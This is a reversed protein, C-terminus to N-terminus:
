FTWGLGVTYQVDLGDYSDIQDSEFEQDQYWRAKVEPRIFFNEGLKAVFGLGGNLTFDSQSDEGDNNDGPVDYEVDITSFGPGAFVYFSRGGPFWQFSLDVLFLQYRLNSDEIDLLDDELDIVGAALLMGFEDTPKYGFAGGYVQSTDDVSDPDYYGFQGEISIEGAAAPVRLACVMLAGVFTAKMWEKRM